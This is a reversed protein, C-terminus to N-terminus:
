QATTSKIVTVPASLFIVEGDQGYTKKVRERWATNYYANANAQTEWLYIGGFTRIPGLTFYKFILNPVAAYTPIAKTFRGSIIGNTAYWPAKVQVIAIVNTASPQANSAGITTEPVEFWVLKADQGYTQRMRTGWAANFFAEASAKDRWLYVGGFATPSRTFYKRELGPGAAYAPVSRTFEATLREDSAQSPRPIEVWVAVKSPARGAAMTAGAFLVLSLGAIVSAIFLNRM